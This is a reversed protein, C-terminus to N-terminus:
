PLHIALSRGLRGRPDWEKEVGHRWLWKTQLRVDKERPLAKPYRDRIGSMM